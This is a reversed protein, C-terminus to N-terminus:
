KGDKLQTLVNIFRILEEKTKPMTLNNYLRQAQNKLTYTEISDKIDQTPPELTYSHWGNNGIRAGDKKSHKSEVDSDDNFIIIQTNTLRTVVAHDFYNSYSHVTYVDDGVKLNQLWQLRETYNM